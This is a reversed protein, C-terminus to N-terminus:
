TYVAVPLSKPICLHLIKMGPTKEERQNLLWETPVKGMSRGPISDWGQEKTKSSHGFCKVKTM